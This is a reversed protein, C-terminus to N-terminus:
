VYFTIIKDAIYIKIFYTYQSWIERNTAFLCDM